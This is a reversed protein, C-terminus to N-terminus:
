LTNKINKIEVYCIVSVIIKETQKKKKKGGLYFMDTDSAPHLALFLCLHLPCM